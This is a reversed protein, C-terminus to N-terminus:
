LPAVHKGAASQKLSSASYFDLEVNVLGSVYDLVNIETHNLHKNKVLILPGRFTHGFLKQKQSKRPCM